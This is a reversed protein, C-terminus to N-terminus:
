VGSYSGRPSAALLPHWSADYSRKGDGVNWLLPVVRIRGEDVLYVGFRPFYLALDDANAVDANDLNWSQYDLDSNRIIIENHVIYECKNRLMKEHLPYLQVDFTLNALAVRECHRAVGVTRAPFIQFHVPELIAMPHVVRKSQHAVHGDENM